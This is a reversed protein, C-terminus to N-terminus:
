FDLFFTIIHFGTYVMENHSRQIRGSDSVIIRNHLIGALLHMSINELRERRNVTHIYPKDDYMIALTFILRTLLNGIRRTTLQVPFISM